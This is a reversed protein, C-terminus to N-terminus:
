YGIKAQFSSDLSFEMIHKVIGTYDDIGEEVRNTKLYADNVKAAVAEVKENRLGMWHEQIKRIDEIVRKDLGSVVERFGEQEYAHNLFYRLAVLSASYQLQRSGSNVCVLWAYFNAEAEGTIGFQHAKEHALVFPYEVPLLKSNIHVENFFPGFYGSIGAQAFFGSLTIDKARRSGAPYDLLLVPSLRRYSDEILRAVEEENFDDFTTYTSNTKDAISRFVKMFEGADAKRSEIGLRSNLDARFYNFGWLFYFLVYGGAIINLALLGAKRFTLKRLILLVVIVFGALILLLYFADDLSFNVWKSVGSVLTAVVPYMGRSYIKEVSQPYRSLVNILILVVLALFPM